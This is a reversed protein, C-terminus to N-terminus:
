IRLNHQRLGGNRLGLDRKELMAGDGTSVLILTHDSISKELCVTKILPFKAGLSTSVFVRDLKALVFNSQNNAWTYKGLCVTKIPPFKAGLSTSVFVRDLKALILDSQNNAWTYNRNTPNLEILWWKNIWDNFIDTFKHNIRGKKKDSLFRSL